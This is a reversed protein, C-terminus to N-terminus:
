FGSDIKPNFLIPEVSETGLLVLDTSLYKWNESPPSSNPDIRRVAIRSGSPLSVGPRSLYEPINILTLDNVSLFNGDALTIRIADTM